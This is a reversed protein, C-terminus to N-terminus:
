TGKDPRHLQGEMYKVFALVQAVALYLHEPIRDDKQLQTLQEMLLPNDLIPVRANIAKTIIETADLGQGIATVYPIEDDHEWRIAIAESRGSKKQTDDQINQKNM